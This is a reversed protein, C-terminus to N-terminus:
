CIRGCSLPQGLWALMGAGKGVATGSGLGAGCGVFLPGVPNGHGASGVSASCRQKTVVAGLHLDHPLCGSVPASVEWCWTLVFSVVSLRGAAWPPCQRPRGGDISARKLHEPNGFLGEARPQNNTLVVMVFAILLPSTRVKIGTM